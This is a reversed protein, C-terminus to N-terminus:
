ITLLDLLCEIDELSRITCVQCVKVLGCIIEDVIYILIILVTAIIQM